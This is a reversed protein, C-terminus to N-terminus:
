RMTRDCPNNLKMHELYNYTNWGKLGGKVTDVWVIHKAIFFIIICCSVVMIAIDVIKYSRM